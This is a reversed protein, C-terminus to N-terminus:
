VKKIKKVIKRKCMNQLKSGYKKKIEGVTQPTKSSVKILPRCYSIKKYRIKKKWM